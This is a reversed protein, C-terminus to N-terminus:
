LVILIICPSAHRHVGADEGMDTEASTRKRAPKVDADMDPSVARPSDHIALAVHTSHRGSVKCQLYKYMLLFCVSWVLTRVGNFGPNVGM